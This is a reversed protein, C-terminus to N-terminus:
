PLLNTDEYSIFSKAVFEALPLIRQVKREDEPNFPIQKDREAKAHFLQTRYNGYLESSVGDIFDGDYKFGYSQAFHELEHLRSSFCIRLAGKILEAENNWDRVIKSAVNEIVLFLERFKDRPDQSISAKRYLAKSDSPKIIVEKLVRPYKIRHGGKIKSIIKIYKIHRTMPDDQPAITAGSGIELNIGYQWCLENLFAEAKPRVKDDADRSSDAEVNRITITSYGKDVIVDGNEVTTPSRSKLD